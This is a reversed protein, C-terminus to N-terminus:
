KLLRKTLRQCNCWSHRVYTVSLPIIFNIFSYVLQLGPTATKMYPLGQISTLWFRKNKTHFSKKLYSNKLSEFITWYVKIPAVRHLISVQLHSSYRKHNNPYRKILGFSILIKSVTCFNFSLVTEFSAGSYM